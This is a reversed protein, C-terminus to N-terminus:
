TVLARYGHLELYSQSIIENVVPFYEVTVGLILWAFFIRTNRHVSLAVPLNVLFMEILYCWELVQHM